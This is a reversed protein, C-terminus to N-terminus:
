MDFDVVSIGLSELRELLDKTHIYLKPIKIRHEPFELIYLFKTKRVCTIDSFSYQKKKDQQLIWAGIFGDFLANAYSICNKSLDVTYLPCGWCILMLMVAYAIFAALVKSDSLELDCIINVGMIVGFFIFPLAYLWIPPCIKYSTSNGISKLIVNDVLVFLSCILSFVLYFFQFGNNAFLFNIINGTVFCAAVYILMGKDILKLENFSISNSVNSRNAKIMIAGSCIFTVLFMIVAPIEFGTEKGYFILDKFLIIYPLFLALSAANIYNLAKFIKM